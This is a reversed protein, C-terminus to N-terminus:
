ETTASRWNTVVILSTQNNGFPANILFRQGDRTVAYQRFGTGPTTGTRFLPEPNGAEFQSRADVAVGMMQGDATLFFLEKGDGRWMPQTGGNRSVQYQGGTPPFPQVFIQEGAAADVSSFAIWRGDPAFVAGYQTFPADTFPIPKRDGAFPLILVDNGTAATAQTLALYQGDHSWDTPYPAGSGNFLMEDRGAGNVAVQYIGSNQRSSFFAIRDGGPSWVPWANVGPAFTIRTRTSRELNIVWIDTAVGPISTSAAYLSVAVRQEDPALALNAYTAPEGVTGLVRGTRDMWTLQTVPEVSRTTYILVGTRSVSASVYRLGVAIVQQAVPFPEGITRLVRADFPQALLTGERWFFLHGSSFSVASEASFLTTVDKSDLAGIRIESPRPATGLPGAVATYFFHRGDPLFYPWRHGTEGRSVDLTTVPTPLGGAASVRQLASAASAFVIVDQENWSGGRGGASDCLVVPPGGNVSVKKLKGEAFFGIFRSNPSWFPFAAQNTGALERADLSGLSRVWLTFAGKSAAVFVIQRGDPSLAIQPALGTGGGPISGFTTNTPPLISFRIAETPAAPVISRWAFMGGAAAVAVILALVLAIRKRRGALSTVRVPQQADTRSFLVDKLELQADGIDHLRERRDKETCRRLLRRISAPTDDPLTQWDPESKIVAALTEAVDEGPFARRGTLMEYFVCGFAWIDSRKDAPRGKAQEPSMYAATGLLVGVGTMLAPSTITPSMSPANPDNSVNPVNRANPDNLKALGFDLVKVTGDPRLKINAPKLDRHIIGQEHAAELAEAIQKAIPLAEDVPIAGRAIRDALTEGEVLEMVLARVHPGAEAPGEELGYIAAINPHNLSALVEAERQFRALRDPDAAFSTPLIKLAVERKLRTDRARYVEGMGGAGLASVVEYPGLRAGPGLPM